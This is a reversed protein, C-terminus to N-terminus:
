RVIASRSNIFFQEQSPQWAKEKKPFAADFAEVAETDECCLSADSDLFQWEGGGLSGERLEMALLSTPYSGFYSIDYRRCSKFGRPVYNAPDGFIVVAEYGLEKAKELSHTLLMKGFGQRQYRPKVSLPGFTLIQKEAGDSSRLRTKLYAIHAIPEGDLLLLLSLEPIFDEHQRMMHLYYHEHCGPVNQNWFAERTLEEAARHYEPTEVIINLNQM